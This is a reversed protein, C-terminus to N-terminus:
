NPSIYCLISYCAYHFDHQEFYLCTLFFLIYDELTSREGSHVTCSVSGFYFDLNIVVKGTICLFSKKFSNYIVLLIAVNTM